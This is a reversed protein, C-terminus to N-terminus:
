LRIIKLFFLHCSVCYSTWLLKTPKTIIQWMIQWFSQITFVWLKFKCIAGVSASFWTITGWFHTVDNQFLASVSVSSSTLWIYTLVVAISSAKLHFFSCQFRNIWKFAVIDWVSLWIDFKYYCRNNCRSFFQVFFEDKVLQRSFFCGLQKIKM